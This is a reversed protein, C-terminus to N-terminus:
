PKTTEEAKDCWDSHIGAGLKDVGCTCKVEGDFDDEFLRGDGLELTELACLACKCDTPHPAWFM